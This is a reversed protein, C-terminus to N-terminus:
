SFSLCGGGGSAESGCSFTTVQEPEQKQNGEKWRGGEVQLPISEEM